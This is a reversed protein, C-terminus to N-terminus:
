QDLWAGAAQLPTQINKKSIWLAIAYREADIETQPRQTTIEYSGDHSIMDVRVYELVVFDHSLKRGNNEGAQVDSTLGFELLTINAM